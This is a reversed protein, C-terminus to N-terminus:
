SLLMGMVSSAILRNRRRMISSMVIQLSVGFGWYPWTRVILFKAAKM